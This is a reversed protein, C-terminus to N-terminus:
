TGMIGLTAPITELLVAATKQSLVKKLRDLDNFPVQKFGPAMPKFKDRFKKDGAALAFGTHGHYGGKASIIESRGTVGRALKIALDIAEGGSVGYVVQNLGKPMTQAIEKALEAKPGSILHHNGIDYLKMADHVAKIIEKNRHGLNFVGGNCHCNIYRNGDIDSIYMGNRTHPVLMINYKSYIDVKGPSVHKKFLAIITDKKLIM